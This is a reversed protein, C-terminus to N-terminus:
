ANWKESVLPPVKRIPDIVPVNRHAVGRDDRWSVTFVLTVFSELDASSITPSYFAVRITNPVSCGVSGGAGNVRCALPRQQGWEGLRVWVIRGFPEPWPPAGCCDNAAVELTISQSRSDVWQNAGGGVWAYTHMEVVGRTITGDGSIWGRACVDLRRVGDGSIIPDACLRATLGGLAQAPRPIVALLSGALLAAVAIRALFTRGATM